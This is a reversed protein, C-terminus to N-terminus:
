PFGAVILDVTRSGNVGGMLQQGTVDFIDGFLAAEPFHKRLVRQCFPDIEVQFLTEFGLLRGCLDPVGIGSFLTGMTYGSVIAGSGAAGCDCLCDQDM